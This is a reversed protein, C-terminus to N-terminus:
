GIQLLLMSLRRFCYLVNGCSIHQGIYRTKCCCINEECVWLPLLWETMYKSRVHRTVCINCYRTRAHEPRKGVNRQTTDVNRGVGFFCGDSYTFCSAVLWVHERLCHFCRWVTSSFVNNDVLLSVECWCWLRKNHICKIWDLRLLTHLLCDFVFRLHYYITTTTAGTWTVSVTCNQQCSNQQAADVSKTYM